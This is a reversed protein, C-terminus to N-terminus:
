VFVNTRNNESPFAGLNSADDQRRKYWRGFMIFIALLIMAAGISIIVLAFVPLSEQGSSLTTDGEASTLLTDVDSVYSVKAIQSHANDYRGSNMAERILTRIVDITSADVPTDSFLTMNGDVVYCENEESAAEGGCLVTCVLSALLVRTNTCALSASIVCHM